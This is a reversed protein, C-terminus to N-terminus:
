LPTSYQEASQYKEYLYQLIEFKSRELWYLDCWICKDILFPAITRSIVKQTIKEMKGLEFIDLVEGWSFFKRHMKKQCQPCNILNQTDMTSKNLAVRNNIDQMILEARKVVEESFEKEERILIYKFDMRKILLSRCFTCCLIGRGEYRIEELGHYCHPCSYKSSTVSTPFRFLEKLESDEYALKAKEEGARRVWSSPRLWNLQLVELFNFPGLWQNDSDAILWKKELPIDSTIKKVIVKKRKKTTEELIKIDIGAMTLLIDIRKKIPPHTSVIDSIFNEREDWLNIRPNVIFISSLKDGPFGEGHWGRSIIYLAEALSLPDRTLRVAIADARYERQRSIFMNICCSIYDIFYAMACIPFLFLLKGRGEWDKENDSIIKKFNDLIASYFEFLSCTITSSLCDSSLIHAIEHGIIAQIQRRNLKVLIGETVGIVKRGGFDAISFANLASTSITYVEFKIGGSAVSAEEIINKLIQHYKDHPDLPEARLLALIREIIHYQSSSWHVIGVAFAIVFISLFEKLTPLFYFKVLDQISIWINKIILWSFLFFLFYLVVLLLFLLGIIQKKQREIEFFSYPM